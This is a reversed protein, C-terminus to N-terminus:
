TQLNNNIHMAAMSILIIQFDTGAGTLATKRATVTIRWSCYGVVEILLWLETLTVM